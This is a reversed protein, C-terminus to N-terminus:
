KEPQDDVADITEIFELKGIRVIGQKEKERIFDANLLNEGSYKGATKALTGFAETPEARGTPLSLQLTWLPRPMSEKKPRNRIEEISLAM